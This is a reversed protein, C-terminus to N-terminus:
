SAPLQRYWQFEYDTALEPYFMKIMDALILDPRAVGGSWYENAGAENVRRTYLWVQGTRYPKFEVFRSDDALMGKISKWQESGNIWIDANAARALQKEIDVSISSTDTNDAWVYAGGADKILGAVYSRGGAVIYAGRFAGGTMVKVKKNEPINKTRNAIEFYRREIASFREEALAEENLFVAMFKLWESRGLASTELWEANSVVPIGALRVAAFAPDSNGSAMVLTPMRSVIFEANIGGRAYEVTKGSKLRELVPKSTVWQSESVGTLVNLRDLEFLLPLQTTAGSFLSAIPVPIIPAGTLKGSLEPKPAGCQLLVYRDEMGGETAHHVTVVKYSKFYEVSFNSAHKLVAKEPFYDMSPDFDTICDTTHNRVAAREATTGVDAGEVPNSPACGAIAWAIFLTSWLCSIRM